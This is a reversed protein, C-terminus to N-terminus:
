SPDFTFQQKQHYNGIDESCSQGFVRGLFPTLLNLLQDHFALSMVENGFAPKFVQLSSKKQAFVGLGDSEM